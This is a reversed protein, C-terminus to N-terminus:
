QKHKKWQTQPHPQTKKLTQPIHRQLWELNTIMDMM